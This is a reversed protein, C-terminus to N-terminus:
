LAIIYFFRMYTHAWENYYDKKAIRTIEKAYQELISQYDTYSIYKNKWLNKLHQITIKSDLLYSLIQENTTNRLAQIIPEQHITWTSGSRFNNEITLFGKEELGKVAKRITYEGCNLAIKLKNITPKFTPALAILKTLLGLESITLKSKYISEYIIIFHKEDEVILKNNEEKKQM